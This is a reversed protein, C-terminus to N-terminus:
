RLLPPPLALLLPSPEQLALLSRACQPGQESDGAEIRKSQHHCSLAYELQHALPMKGLRALFLGCWSLQM